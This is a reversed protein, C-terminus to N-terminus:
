EKKVEKLLAVCILIMIISFPLAALLSATQLGALGSAMLLIIAIASIFVGWVVKSGVSPDLSRTTMMGLVFTASNASTILFTFILIIALVSLLGGFPFQQLTVFLGAEMDEDVADVIPAEVVTELYLAAGGFVAMWAIAVLPPVLMVGTIFERITRGKSVRAIFTGVFPSWAMAWAWYFITWESGWETEEVLKVQFSMGIINQLYNGMGSVFTNFLHATPGVFFVFFMMFFALSLNVISLMRIGKNLGTISSILYAVMLVVIIILQTGMEDPIDYIFNLGGSLQLVGLGLTTAVGIATALVALIDIVVRWGPIAGVKNNMLPEIATSILIPRQKRFRFYALSLGIVAFIAWQHIGWHFMAYQLAIQITEETGGDYGPPPSIFHEVPESVGWFVLAVGFGASFLMGIWTFYTYEPKSDDEGLKIHGYKSFAMYVCFIIFFATVLLYFGNFNATTWEFAYEAWYALQEPFMAGILIFVSIAGTSIWFVLNTSKNQGDM